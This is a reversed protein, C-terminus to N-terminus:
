DKPIYPSPLGTAAFDAMMQQLLPATPRALIPLNEEKLLKEDLLRRHGSANKSLDTPYIRCIAKDTDPDVIHVFDLNWKAYHIALSKLHRYSNPIEYRNNEIMVTGDTNRQQRTVRRRFFLTLDQWSPCDRMVNPGAIFRKVPTDGIGQHFKQNYDAEVWALIAENLTALNLDDGIPLMLEFRQQLTRWFREMKANQYASYPLTKEHSIGLRALGGTFEAAIMASGNDTMLMRPLGRKLFAQMVAHVLNETTEALFWQAHCILRSKDDIVAMIVPAKWEGEKTLIKFNGHHYDLHYLGGVHTAEFSRVERTERKIRAVEEGPSENKRTLSIPLFGNVKMYRSFTSYSPPAESKGLEKLKAKLNDLHLKYTWNSHEQYQSEILESFMPLIKVFAKSKAKRNIILAALPDKPNNKAKYYWREITMWHLKIMTNSIPNLWDKKGLEKLQNKLCRPEPPSALLASVVSFRFQAIVRRKETFDEKM